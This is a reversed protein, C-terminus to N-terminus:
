KNLIHVSSAIFTGNSDKGIVIVSDNVAPKQSEPAYVTSSNTTINKTAGNGAITFTDGNVQTVVGTLRTSITGDTPNALEGGGHHREMMQGMPAILSREERRDMRVNSLWGIGFGLFLIAAGVGAAVLTKSTKHKETKPQKSPADNSSKILKSEESM